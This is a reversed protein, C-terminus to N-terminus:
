KDDPGCERYGTCDADPQTLEGFHTGLVDPRHGRCDDSVKKIIDPSTTTQM